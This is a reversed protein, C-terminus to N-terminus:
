REEEFDNLIQKTLEQVEENIIYTWNDSYNSLLKQQEPTLQEKLDNFMKQEEKFLTDLETNDRQLYEIIDDMRYIYYRKKFDTYTELTEEKKELKQKIENLNM